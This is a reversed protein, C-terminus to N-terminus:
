LQVVECLYMKGQSRMGTTLDKEVLIKVAYGAQPLAALAKHTYADAELGAYKGVQPAADFNSEGLWFKDHLHLRRVRFNEGAPIDLNYLKHGMKYMNDIIEGQSIGAYDIIGVEDTVAEPAAAEYVDYELGNADYTVDAVLDGLKVLYGDKLNEEARGNTLAADLQDSYMKGSYFVYAM